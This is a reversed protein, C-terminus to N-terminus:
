NDLSSGRYAAIWKRRIGRTIAEPRSGDYRFVNTSSAFYIVDDVNVLAKPGACGIVSSVLEWHVIEPLGVYQGRWMGGKKFVVIEIGRKIGATIPGPTERFRGYASEGVGGDSEPTWNRINGTDSRHWGDPISVGGRNVNFLYLANDHVVPIRAKPAGSLDAFLALRSSSVQPYDITGGVSITALAEDNYQEFLCQSFASYGGSRSTNDFVSTGSNWERLQGAAVAVFWRYTGDDLQVLKTGCAAGVAVGNAFGATTTGYGPRMGGSLTPVFNSAVTIATTPDADPLYSLM